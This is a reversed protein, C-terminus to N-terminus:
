KNYRKSIIIDIDLVDKPLWDVPELMIEKIKAEDSPQCVGVVEDYVNFLVEFGEQLFRKQKEFLLERAHSQIYNGTFGKGYWNSPVLQGSREKLKPFYLKRGTLLTVHDGTKIKKDLYAYLKQVNPFMNHYTKWGLLATEETTTPIIQRLGELLLKPSMGYGLGLVCVKAVQREIDEKGVKKKFMREAFEIYVDKGKIDKFHKTIHALIRFEIQSFDASFLYKDKPAVICGRLSNKVVELTNLKHKKIVELPDDENTIRDKTKPRPINLINTKGMGQKEGSAYRGTITGFHKIPPHIYEKNMSDLKKLIPSQRSFKFKFMRQVPKPLDNLISTIYPKGTKTENCGHSKMFEITQQYSNPNFKFKQEFQKKHIHTYLDRIKILKKVLETDLYIKNNLMKFTDTMYDLEKEPIAGYNNILHDYLAKCVKTDQINYEVYKDWKDKDQKLKEINGKHESVWNVALHKAWDQKQVPLEFYKACNSLSNIGTYYASMVDTCIWKFRPVVGQLAFYEFSANHAVFTFDEDMLKRVASLINEHGAIVRYSDNEFM